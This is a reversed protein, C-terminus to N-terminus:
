NRLGAQKFLDYVVLKPNPYVGNEDQKDDVHWYYLKGNEGHEFIIKDDMEIMGLLIGDARWFEINKRIMLKELSMGKLLANLTIKKNSGPFHLKVYIIVLINDGLYYIKETRTNNIYATPFEMGQYREQANKLDKEKVPQFFNPIPGTMKALFDGEKSYVEYGYEEPKIVFLLGKENVTLPKLDGAHKAASNIKEMYGCHKIIGKDLDGITFM